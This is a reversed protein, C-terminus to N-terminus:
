EGVPWQALREETKAVMTAEYSALRDGHFSPAVSRRERLHDPGDKFILADGGVAPDHATVRRLAEGMRLSGQQATFIAKVDQPGTTCVWTPLGPLDLVFRDGLGELHRFMEDPATWYDAALKLGSRQPKPLSDISASM